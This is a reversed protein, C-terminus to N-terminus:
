TDLTSCGQAPGLAVIELLLDLGALIRADDLGGEVAEILAVVKFALRGLRRAVV